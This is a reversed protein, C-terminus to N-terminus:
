ESKSSDCATVRYLEFTGGRDLLDFGPTGPPPYTVGDWMNDWPRDNTLLYRVNLRRAIECVRPDTNAKVLYQALYAQDTTMRGLNIQPFLVQRGSIAMAEPSGNFPMQAIIAGPEVYRNLRKYLGYEDDDVLRHDRPYAALVRNRHDAHNVVGTGLVFVALVAPVVLPALRVRGESTTLLRRVYAITAALGIAALPVGTIPVMAALRHSDTYWFGTFLRRTAGPLGAALVYLGGSIAHSAVLWRRTRQVFCTVVGVVVLAALVWGAARGNTAGTLVEGLAHSPTEFPLAAANITGAFLDTKAVVLYYLPPTLVLPSLLLLSLGRQGAARRRRAALVLGLIIVPLAVALLSFVANPHAIAVAFLIVPALLWARGRGIADDQALGAMSLVAALAAPVLALGLLNPWLIGWGLLEWPFAGFAISLFGALGLLLPKPGLLQRTLLVCGLPWVVLAITVSLINAAVPVSGGTIMVLLSGLDHWGAPYFGRVRDPVGLTDVMLTSADRSNLIHAIANYHFPSDSTEILQEPSTIVRTVTFAGFLMAALIGAAAALIAPRPDGAIPAALRARLPLVVAALLGATGAFVALLLWPSWAIGLKSAVIATVVVVFVVVIPALAVAALRRLGLLYTIPVGPVVLGLACVLVSPVSGLWNM